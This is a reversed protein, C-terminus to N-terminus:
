TNSPRGRAAPPGLRSPRSERPAGLWAVCCARATRRQLESQQAESRAAPRCRAGAGVRATEFFVCNKGITIGVGCIERPAREAGVEVRRPPITAVARATALGVHSVPAPPAPAPETAPSATRHAFGPARRVRPPRESRRRHAGPEVSRPRRRRHMRFRASASSAYSGTTSVRTRGRVAAAVAGPGLEHLPGQWRTSVHARWPLRLLSRASTVATRRSM